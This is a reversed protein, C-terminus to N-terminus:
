AAVDVLYVDAEPRRRARDQIGRVRRGRPVPMDDSAEVGTVVERSVMRQTARTWRSRGSQSATLTPSAARAAARLGSRTLRSAERTARGKASMTSVKVRRPRGARMSSGTRASSTVSREARTRRRRGQNRQAAGGDSRQEHAGAGCGVVDCGAHEALESEGAEGRESVVADVGDREEELAFEGLGMSSLLRVRRVIVGASYGAGDPKKRARGRWIGASKAPLVNPIVVRLDV